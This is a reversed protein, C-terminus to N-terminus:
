KADLALRFGYSNFRDDPSSSGRRSVRCDWTYDLWSGGRLVRHAGSSPGKPNSSPSNNYYSSDYWDSCWEYVNGAMDYIGLENPLKTGVTHPKDGSNGSYWAVEDISNSGSYIYGRSSNGGRAAYEWEAETPLRYNKGTKANLRSIFEQVDDWSVQEVPRGDSKFYSPNSGMIEVWQKQTVEYKGIYYGSLTVRHAPKDNNVAESDSASAGMMFTGGSVYVMDFMDIIRRREQEASVAPPQPTTVTPKVETAIAQLAFNESRKQGAAIKIRRNETTYGKAEVTVMYEGKEAEFTYPVTGQKDGIYVKAGKVNSTIRVTGVQPKIAPKEEPKSPGSLVSDAMAIQQLSDVFDVVGPDITRNQFLMFGVVAGIVVAAGIVVGKYREWFSRKPETRAAAGTEPYAEIEPPQQDMVEAAASATDNLETEEDVSAAPNEQLLRLFAALSQPRKKKDLEMAAMVAARTAASIKAPLPELEESIRLNAELPTIGTLMKYLTAGLAYIDTAPLFKVVSNSMQELPAYGPTKGMLTSTNEGNLEDYQKSTGFDILIPNDESDIMINGPKIDLHLRNNEHVYQLATAVQSIYRVAREEPLPGYKKLIDHISMGEIYEMVYYATGNEEFVDSVSVIGPHQLRCLAKAEDIFKRRLKKVLGKKSLTGVTVHFTTEDRNCFDKVFFEKIAVRKELLVHEAEYTCGFGGSSIHRIIRYTGGRLLTNVPLQM